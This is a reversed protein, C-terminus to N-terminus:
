LCLDVFVFHELFLFVHVSNALQTTLSHSSQDAQVPYLSRRLVTLSRECFSSLSPVCSLFSASALVFGPKIDVHCLELFLSCLFYFLPFWWQCLSLLWFFFLLLKSYYSINRSSLAWWVCLLIFLFLTWWTIDKHQFFTSDGFVFLFHCAHQLFLLLWM